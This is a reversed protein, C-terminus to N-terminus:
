EEDVWEPSTTGGIASMRTTRMDRGCARVTVVTDLKKVEKALGWARNIRLQVKQQESQLQSGGAPAHSSANKRGDSLATSATMTPSTKTALPPVKDLVMIATAVPAMTSHPYSSRRRQRPHQTEPPAVIQLPHEFVKCPSGTAPLRLNHDQLPIRGILSGGVGSEGDDADIIQAYWCTNITQLSYSRCILGCYLDILM